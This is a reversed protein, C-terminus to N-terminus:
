NIGEPLTKKETLLFNVRLETQNMKGSTQTDTVITVHM